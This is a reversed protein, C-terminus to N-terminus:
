LPSECATLYLAALGALLVVVELQVSVRHLRHFEARLPHDHPTADVSGMEIRLQAMRPSVAHQSVLTLALMAVVLLAAASALASLSKALAVRSLLYVVGAMLGLMHLRALAMGVMAGALERSGLTAFAGPAVVFSLFLISGVWTGLSLFELFRLITSM